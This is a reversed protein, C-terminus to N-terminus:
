AGAERREAAIAPFETREQEGAGCLSEVARDAADQFPGLVRGVVDGIAAFMAALATAFIVLCEPVPALREILPNAGHRVFLVVAVVLAGGFASGDPSARGRGWWPGAIVSVLGRSRILKVDLQIGVLFSLVAICLVSLLDVRAESHLVDQASSGAILGVAISSVNLPQRALTGTGAAMAPLLAIEAFSTLVPV